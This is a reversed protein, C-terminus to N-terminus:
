AKGKTHNVQLKENHFKRADGTGEEGKSGLVSRLVSKEYAKRAHIYELAAWIDPV